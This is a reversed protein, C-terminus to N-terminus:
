VVITMGPLVSTLVSFVADSKQLKVRNSMPDNHRLRRALRRSLGYIVATELRLRVNSVTKPLDSAANNM